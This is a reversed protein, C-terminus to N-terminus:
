VKLTILLDHIFLTFGILIIGIQYTYTHIKDKRHALYIAIIMFVISLLASVWLEIGFLILIGVIFEFLASFAGLQHPLGKSVIFNSWNDLDIIKKFGHYIFIFGLIIRLSLFFLDSETINKIYDYIIKITNSEDNMSLKSLDDM